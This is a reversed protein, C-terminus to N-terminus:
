AQGRRAAAEAPRLRRPEAAVTMFLAAAAAALVMGATFPVAYGFRDAMWGGAFPAAVLPLGAMNDLSIYTPRKELPALELIYNGHGLWFTLASLTALAFAAYFGWATTALMAAAMSTAAAGASFALIVRYGTRDALPGV